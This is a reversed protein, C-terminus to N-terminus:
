RLVQFLGERDFQLVVGGRARVSPLIRDIGVLRSLNYGNLVVDFPGTALPQVDDFARLIAEWIVEIPNRFVGGGILTLVVPSRQLVVGALLTGLYAARQLQCCAPEFEEAFNREGGYFGGAITSTFVQTIRRNHSDEVYGDWDHGLVVQVGDHVGVRIRDFGSELAAVVNAASM